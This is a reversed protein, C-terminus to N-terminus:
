CAQPINCRRGDLLFPIFPFRKNKHFLQALTQSGPTASPFHRREAMAGPDHSAISRAGRKAPEQDVRKHAYKPRSEVM